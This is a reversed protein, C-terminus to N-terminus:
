TTISCTFSDKISGTGWHREVVGGVASTAAGDLAVARPSHTLPQPDLVKPRASHTSRQPDLVTALVTSLTLCYGNDVFPMAQQRTADSGM